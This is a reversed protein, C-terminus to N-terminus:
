RDSAALGARLTLFPELRRSGQLTGGFADTWSFDGPQEELVTVDAEVGVRLTGLDPRELVAAPASTVGPVLKELPVGLTMLYSMVAPLHFHQDREATFTTIDTSVTDPLFGQDVLQRAVSFFLHSRGVACDFLIGRQRAELVEPLVKGQLDVLGHRHGTLMHTVVDGPRLVELLRPLPEGSAGIHIMIPVGAAEAAQRVLRLYPLAEQGVAYNSTRLKIGVIRDRNAAITKVALDVDAHVPSPIDAWRLEVMGASSLHLWALVRLPTTEMVYRRFGPFTNGGSSGGDVATTTGRALCHVGPDAGGGVGWFVHCHLDILGPLVLRGSVDVTERGEAPAISEAVAAVRGDQIAVDFRGHRGQAPDILTGGRLILDYM